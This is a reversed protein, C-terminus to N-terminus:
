QFVRTSMTTTATTMMMMMMIMMMMIMMMMMMMMMMPVYVFRVLLPHYLLKGNQIKRMGGVALYKSAELTRGWVFHGFCM